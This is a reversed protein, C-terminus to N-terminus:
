SADRGDRERATPTVSVARRKGAGLAMRSTAGVWAKVTYGTTSANQKKPAPVGTLSPSGM